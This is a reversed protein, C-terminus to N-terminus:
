EVSRIAHLYSDYLTRRPGDPFADHWPKVPGTFHLIRADTIAREGRDVKHSRMDNWLTPLPHWDDGVAVNLADQDPFRLRDANARLYDLCRATIRRRRWAEVDIFLVGSNFYPRASEDRGDAVVGPVGGNDAYTKTYADPVAGIPVGRLDVTFLSGIEGVCLTDTDLYLLRDVDSAVLEPLLLRLYMATSIYEVGPRVSIPFRSVVDTPDLVKVTGRAGVLESLAALRGVRVDRMPLVWFTVTEGPDVGCALISAMVVAAYPAYTDDFALGIHLDPRAQAPGGGDAM